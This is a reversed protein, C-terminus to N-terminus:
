ILSRGGSVLLIRIAMMAAAGTALTADMLIVHMNAISCFPSPKTPPVHSFSDPVRRYDVFKDRYLVVWRYPLRLYHLAPEGTEQCTQILIKGVSIDKVVSHVATEMVEGARVISM